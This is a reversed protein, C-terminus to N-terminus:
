EAGEATEEEGVTAVEIRYIGAERAADLVAQVESMPVTEAAQVVLQMAPNANLVRKLGAVLEEREVGRGDLTCKRAADIALVIDVPEPNIVTPLGPEVTDEGDAAPGMSPAVAGPTLARLTARLENVSTHLERIEAGLSEVSSRLEDLEGEKPAWGRLSLSVIQAAVAIVVAVVVVYTAWGKM